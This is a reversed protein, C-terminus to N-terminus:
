EPMERNWCLKCTELSSSNPNACMDTGDLDLEDPCMGRVISDANMGPYKDLAAELYTM